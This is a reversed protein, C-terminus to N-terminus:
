EANAGLFQFDSRGLTDSKGADEKSTQAIVRVVPNGESDKADEIMTIKGNTVDKKIQDYSHTSSAKLFLHTQGDFLM